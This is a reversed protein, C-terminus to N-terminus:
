AWSAASGIAAPRLGRTCSVHIAAVAMILSAFTQVCSESKQAKSGATATTRTYRDSETGTTRGPGPAEASWASYGAPPGGEVLIIHRQVCTM